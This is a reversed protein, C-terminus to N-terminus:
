SERYCDDRVLNILLLLNTFKPRPNLGGKESANSSELDDDQHCSTLYYVYYARDLRWEKLAPKSVKSVPTAIGM